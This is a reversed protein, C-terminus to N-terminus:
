QLSMNIVFPLQVYEWDMFNPLFLCRSHITGELGVISISCGGWEGDRIGGECLFQNYLYRERGVIKSGFNFGLDLGIGPHFYFYKGEVELYRGHNNM